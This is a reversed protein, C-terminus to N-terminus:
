DTRRDPCRWRRGRRYGARRAPWSPASRSSTAARPEARHGDGLVDALCETALGSLLLDHLLSSCADVGLCQSRGLGIDIVAHHGGVHEARLLDRRCPHSSRFTCRGPRCARSWRGPTFREPEGRQPSGIIIGPPTKIRSSARSARLRHGFHAGDPGLGDSTELVVGENLARRLVDNDAM